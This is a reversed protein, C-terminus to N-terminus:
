EVPSLYIAVGGRSKIDFKLIDKNRVIKTNVAVQTKTKVKEGGDTYIEAKYKKGATLFDLPIEKKEGDNNTLCGVWWDNGKRRAITIGKGPYGNIVKTDDFTTQLNEFWKIEPEGNYLDPSDYWFITQLPSYFVLSAALQ